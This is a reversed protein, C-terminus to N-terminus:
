ESYGVLRVLVENRRGAMQTPPNYYLYEAKGDHQLGQAALNAFLRDKLANMDNLRPFGGITLSATYMSDTQAFAIFESRPRPKIAPDFAKPMTFAMTGALANGDADVTMVVPATMAISENRENNGFIYGGLERFGRNRMFEYDGERSMVQVVARNAPPYFRIEIDGKHTVVRYQQQETSNAMITMYAQWGLFLALVTVSVFIMAAKM